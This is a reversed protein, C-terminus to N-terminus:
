QNIPIVKFGGIPVVVVIREPAGKNESGSVVYSVRNGVPDYSYALVLGSNVSGSSSSATVRGLADYAYITTEAASVVGTMSLFMVLVALLRRMAFDKM